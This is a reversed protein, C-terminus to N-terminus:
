LHIFKYIKRGICGILYDSYYLNNIRRERSLFKIKTGVLEELNNEDNFHIKGNIFIINKIEKKIIKLNNEIMEDYIKIINAYILYIQDNFNYINTLNFKDELSVRKLAIKKNYILIENNDTLYYQYNCSSTMQKINIDLIYKINYSEGDMCYVKDGILFVENNCKCLVAGKYGKEETKKIIAVKKVSKSDHMFEFEYLMESKDSSTILKNNLVFINTINYYENEIKVTIREPSEINYIFYITNRTDVVVYISNHILLHKIKYNIEGINIKKISNTRKKKTLLLNM